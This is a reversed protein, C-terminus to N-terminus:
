PHAVPKASHQRLKRKTARGEAYIEGYNIGDRCHCFPNGQCYGDRCPQCSCPSPTVAEAMRKAYCATCIGINSDNVQDCDGCTNPGIHFGFLGTRNVETSKRNVERDTIECIPGHESPHFCYPCTAVDLM